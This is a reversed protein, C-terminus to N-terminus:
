ATPVGGSLDSVMAEQAGSIEVPCRVEQIKQSLGSPSAGQALLLSVSATSARLSYSGLVVCALSAESLPAAKGIGEFDLSSLASRSAAVLVFAAAAYAAFVLLAELVAQARRRQSLREGL